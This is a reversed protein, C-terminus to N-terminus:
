ATTLARILQPNVTIPLVNKETWLTVGNRDDEKSWGYASQAVTNVYQRTQAPAYVKKMFTEAGVPIMYADADAILKTGTISASYRIYRLGDHSDFFQYNFLGSGSGFSSEPVGMSALDLGGRMERNLVLSGGGGQQKEVLLRQNFFDKGCIVIPMTMTNQTKEIDQELFDLQENFAQFHDVANNSLDMNIKAPRASGLIDTYFNYEPMPGNRTINTDLTLLQAFALEDFQMWGRQSKRNMQAVLYAEDMLQETGPQRKNAYDKPAVNSRMGFSGVEYILQRAKDKQIDNGYEDYRKGDPVQETHTLEDYKFTNTELFVSNTTGGLLATLLGPAVEQREVIPTVDQMEFSNANSHSLAKDFAIDNASTGGSVKVTM